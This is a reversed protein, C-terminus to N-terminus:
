PSFTATLSPYQQTQVSIVVSTFHFLSSKSHLMADPNYIAPPSIMTLINCNSPAMAQGMRATDLNSAQKSAQKSNQCLATRTSECICDFALGSTPSAATARGSSLDGKCRTGCCGVIAFDDLVAKTRQPSSLQPWHDLSAGTGSTGHAVSGGAVSSPLPGAM